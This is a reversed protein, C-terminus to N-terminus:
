KLKPVGGEFVIVQGKKLVPFWDKGGWTGDKLVEIKQAGELYNPSWHVKIDGYVVRGYFQSQDTVTFEVPTGFVESFIVPHKLGIRLGYLRIKTGYELDAEAKVLVGKKFTLKTSRPFEYNGMFEFGYKAQAVLMGDKDPGNLVRIEELPWGCHSYTDFYKALVEEDKAGAGKTTEGALPLSFGFLIAMSSLFFRCGIKRGM